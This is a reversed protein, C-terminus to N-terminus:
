CQVNGTRCFLEEGINLNCPAPSSQQVRSTLGQRVLLRMYTARMKPSMFSKKKHTPPNPTKKLAEVVGYFWKQPWFPSWWQGKSWFSTSRWQPKFCWQESKAEFYGNQSTKPTNQPRTHAGRFIKKGLHVGGYNNANFVVISPWGLGSQPKPFMM